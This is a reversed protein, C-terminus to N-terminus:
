LVRRNAKIGIFGVVSLSHADTVSRLSCPSCCLGVCNFQVCLILRSCASSSQLMWIVSQGGSVANWRFTPISCLSGVGVGFKCSHLSMFTQWPCHRGLIRAMFGLPFHDRSGLCPVKTGTMLVSSHCQTVLGCRRPAMSLETSM